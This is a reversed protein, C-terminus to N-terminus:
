QNKPDWRGNFYAGRAEKKLYELAATMVGSLSISPGVSTSMTSSNITLACLICLKKKSHSILLRIFFSFCFASPM